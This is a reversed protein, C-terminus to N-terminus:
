QAEPAEIALINNIQGVLHDVAATAVTANKGRPKSVTFRPKSSDEIVWGLPAKGTIQWQELAERALEEYDAKSLTPTPLLHPANELLVGIAEEHEPTGPAPLHDVLEMGLETARGVLISEDECVAKKGPQSMSMSGLKVGQPNTVDHKEGPEFGSALAEKREKHRAYLKGLVADELVVMLREHADDVTPTNDHEQM